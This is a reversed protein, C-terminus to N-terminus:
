TRGEGRIAHVFESYDRIYDAPDYHDSALVLLVADSAHKYQVAWVLPPLYLGLTASNLHFEERQSGDDAVISCEGHVCVLFQRLTRHAHEGRVERGAVGYVLFFRKVEFPVHQGIEAYTLQGRLDEAFPLRHLTVGAVSTAFVGVERTDRLGSKSHGPLLTGRYGVIRAPNGQVIALPPVDATVFSCPQVWAREGVTVGTQIVSQAGIKSGRKLVTNRTKDEAAATFSVNAEITVGDEVVTGNRLAVGFCVTVNAGMSVGPEILTHDEITCGPGVNAQAATGSASSM